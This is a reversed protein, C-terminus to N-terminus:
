VFEVRLNTSRTIFINWLFQQWLTLSANNWNMLVERSQVIFLQRFMVGYIFILFGNTKFGAFTSAVGVTWCSWNMQRSFDSRPVHSCKFCILLSVTRNFFSESYFGEYKICNQFFFEAAHPSIISRKYNMKGSRYGDYVFACFLSTM